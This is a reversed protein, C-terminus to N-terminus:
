GIMLPSAIAELLVRAVEEPPHQDGVLIAFEDGGLRAALPEDGLVSRLRVAVEVLVGDGAGHGLTDNILKFHDLDLMLLSSGRGSAQALHAEIGKAFAGRSALGTLSDHNALRQLMTANAATTENAIRLAEALANASHKTSSAECFDRQAILSSRALMLTLFAAVFGFLLNEYDGISLRGIITATLLPIAFATATPAHASGLAVAGAALGSLIFLLLSPHQGLITDCVVPLVAWTLGALSAGFWSRRLFADPSTENLRALRAKRILAYRVINVTAIAGLWALLFASPVQERLMLSVLCAVVMNSPLAM